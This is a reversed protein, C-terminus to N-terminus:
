YIGIKKMEKILEDREEEIREELDEASEELENLLKKADEINEVDYENKLEEMLVTRMAINKQNAEIKADLDRKLKEITEM